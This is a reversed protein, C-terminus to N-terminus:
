RRSRGVSLAVAAVVLWAASIGVRKPSSSCGDGTTHTPMGADVDHRKDDYVWAWPSTHHHVIVVRPSPARNILVPTRYTVVRPTVRITPRSIIPRSISPRAGWARVGFSGGTRQGFAPMACLMAALFIIGRIM